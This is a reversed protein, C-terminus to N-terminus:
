STEETISPNASRDHPAAPELLRQLSDRLYGVAERALSIDASAKGLIFAGQLVAQTYRALGAATATGPAKALALAAALDGELTHAHEFIAAACADRVADSTAFAEQTMTGAACSYEAPPGDILEERLDIYGLVRDIPREARHYAAAAFMAATTSAWHHAVEVAFAEKSTFHHFFAGKTVGATECLEDVTTGALGRERIVAIGADLLGTRAAGYKVV